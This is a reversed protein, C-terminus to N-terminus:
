LPSPRHAARDNKDLKAACARTRAGLSGVQTVISWYASPAIPPVLTMNLGRFLLVLTALVYCPLRSM